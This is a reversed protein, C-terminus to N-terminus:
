KERTQLSKEVADGLDQIAEKLGKAAEELREVPLTLDWRRVTVEEDHMWGDIAALPRYIKEAGQPVWDAVFVTRHSLLRVSRGSRWNMYTGIWIGLLILLVLIAVATKRIM